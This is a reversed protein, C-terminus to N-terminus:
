NISNSEEKPAYTIFQNGSHHFLERSDNIGKKYIKGNEPNMLVVNQQNFGLLLVAEDNDLVAM